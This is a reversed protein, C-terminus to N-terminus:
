ILLPRMVKSNCKEQMKAILFVYGTHFCSVHVDPTIAATDQDCQHECPDLLRRGCLENVWPGSANQQYYLM